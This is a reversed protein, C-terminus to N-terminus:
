PWFSGSGFGQYRRSRLHEDYVRESVNNEAEVEVEVDELERIEGYKGINLRITGKFMNVYGNTLEYVKGAQVQEVVEDWLTLLVTGTDDGVLAETVVHPTRDKKSRVNKVEEMSVVKFVINVRKSKPTLDGVKIFPGEAM